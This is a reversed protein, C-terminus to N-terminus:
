TLADDVEGLRTIIVADNFEGIAPDGTRSFAIAGCNNPDSAMTAAISRAKFSDRCEQPEGTVIQGDELYRFPLAVYYTVVSMAPRRVSVQAINVGAIRVGRIPMSRSLAIGFDPPSGFVASSRRLEESSNAACPPEGVGAEIDTPRLRELSALKPLWELTAM